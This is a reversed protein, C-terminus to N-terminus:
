RGAPWVDVASALRLEVSGEPMGVIVVQRGPRVCQEAGASLVYDQIDRDRTLWVAGATCSVRLAQTPTLSVAHVSRPGLAITDPLQRVKRHTVRGTNRPGEQLYLVYRQGDSALAWRPLRLANRAAGFAALLQVLLM